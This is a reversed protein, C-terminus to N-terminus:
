DGSGSAADGVPSKGFRSYRTLLLLPITLLTVLAMLRFDSVYAMISAQRTAEVNLAALGALEALNWTSPLPVHRLAENFPSVYESLHAHNAQTTRVLYAVALSAGISSGLNRGLSYLGTGIDIHRSPLTSFTLVTLPVFAFGLGLGHGFMIIIFDIPEFAPTLLSVQWDAYFVLSIGVFILIKPQFIRLLSGATIAAIAFALGHPVMAMGATVVPYGALVQMYPSVMALFALWQAGMITILCWGLVFNRDQFVGVEIYPCNSTATHLAFLYVSTVVIGMGVIIETANVWDLREGQSLVLQLAVLGTTIILFGILGFPRVQDRVRRVPAFIFVLAFSVLGIPVNIYFAWRWSHFEAVYGGLAPGFMGGAMIGVTWIGMAEGREEGTYADFIFSQSIPVLPAAFVGQVFRWVVLEILSASSAAFISAIVFGM